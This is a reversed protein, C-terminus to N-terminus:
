LIAKNQEPQTVQTYVHRNNPSQTRTSKTNNENDSSQDSNHSHRRKTNTITTEYNHSIINSNPTETINIKTNFVPIYKSNSSPQEYIGGNPNSDSTSPQIIENLHASASHPQQEAAM